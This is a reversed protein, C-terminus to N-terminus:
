RELLEQQRQRSGPPRPVGPAGSATSRECLLMRRLIRLDNLLRRLHAAGSSLGELKHLVLRLAEVRRKAQELSATTLDAEVDIVTHAIATEFIGIFEQGSEITNFPSARRELRPADEVRPKPSPQPLIPGRVLKTAELEHM